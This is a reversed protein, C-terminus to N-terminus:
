IAVIYESAPSIGVAPNIVKSSTPPKVAVTNMVFFSKEKRLPMKDIPNKTAMPNMTQLMIKPNERPNTNEETITRKAAPETNYVVEFM